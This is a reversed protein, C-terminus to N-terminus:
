KSQKARAPKCEVIDGDRLWRRLKPSDIIWEGETAINRGLEPHRPKRDKAPKVHRKGKNPDSM